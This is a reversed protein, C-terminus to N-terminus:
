QLEAAAQEYIQVQEQVAAAADEPYPVVDLSREQLVTQFESSNFAQNLAVKLVDLRGEPVGTHTALGRFRLLSTFDPDLETVAPIDESGDIRENWLTLVPLLEGSAVLETVDSSQEILLDTAGTLPATFREDADQIIVRELDLAFARELGRISLDELDLPVGESAVTLGSNQEAYTLVEDWTTFRDDDPDIYIQSVAINGVLLPVVDEAPNVDSEGAAYAAAYIDVISLLTYGDPPAALFEPFAALGGDGPINTVEVPVGLTDEAAGAISRAWQDSGGGAAFGVIINVSKSPFADLGDPPVDHPGCGSAAILGIFVVSSVAARVRAPSTPSNLSVYM